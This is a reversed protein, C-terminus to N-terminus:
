GRPQPYGRVRVMGELGFVGYSSWAHFMPGPSRHEDQQRSGNPLPGLLIPSPAGALTERIPWESHPGIFTINMNTKKM